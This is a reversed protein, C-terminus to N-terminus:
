YEVIGTILALLVILGAVGGVIFWKNRKLFSSAGGKYKDM